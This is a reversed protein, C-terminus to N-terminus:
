LHQCPFLEVSQISIQFHGEIGLKQMWYREWKDRSYQKLMIMKSLKAVTKDAWGWAIRKLRRGVERFVRELLSITKPAIVGTKLWIEINTFMRGALNELYSAGHKYGKDKFTQILDAIEAKSSEYRKEVLEKDQEKLLEYETELGVRARLDSISM